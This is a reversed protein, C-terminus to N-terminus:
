EYLCMLVEVLKYKNAHKVEIEIKFLSFLLSFIFDNNTFYARKYM